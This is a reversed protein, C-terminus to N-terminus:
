WASDGGLAKSLTEIDKAARADLPTYSNRLHNVSYAEPTRTRPDTWVDQVDAKPSEGVVTTSGDALDVRMLASKDRGVSSLMLASKGDGEIGLPQTTLSDAQGYALIREWGDGKRRLM